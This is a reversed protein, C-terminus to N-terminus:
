HGKPLFLINEFYLMNTQILIYRRHDTRNAQYLIKILIFIDHNWTSIFYNVSKHIWNVIALKEQTNIKILGILLLLSFKDYVTLRIIEM